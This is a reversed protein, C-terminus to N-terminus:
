YSYHVKSMVCSLPPHLIPRDGDRYQQSISEVKKNQAHNSYKTVRVKNVFTLFCYSFIYLNYVFNHMKQKTLVRRENM